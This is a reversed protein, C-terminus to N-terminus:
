DLALPAPSFSTYRLTLEEGAAIDRAAVLDYDETATMNPEGGDAPENCYWGVTLQNFNPPCGIRDGQQITFDRYLRRAAPSAQDIDGRDVWVIEAKDTGFVNTGAPIDCIAFVGVGHIPSVGLRAWVGEHPLLRTRSKSPM